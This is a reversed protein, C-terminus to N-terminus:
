AEDERPEWGGEAPLSAGGQLWEELEAIRVFLKRTGLRFLPVPFEGAAHLRLSQTTSIGLRRSAERLSYTGPQIERPPTEAV